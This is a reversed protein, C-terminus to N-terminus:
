DFLPLQVPAPPRQAAESARIARLPAGQAERIPQAPDFGGEEGAKWVTFAADAAGLEVVRERHTLAGLGHEEDWTCGFEFGLYAYGEKEVTLVHVNSLGILSRFDDSVSPMLEADEGDDYLSRWQPYVQALAGLIAAQISSGHEKLYFYAAKQADSPAWTEDPAEFWLPVEGSSLPATQAGYAGLREQFGSWEPLTVRAEWRFKSWKLTPLNM